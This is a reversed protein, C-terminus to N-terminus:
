QSADFEWRFCRHYRSGRPGPRSEFLTLGDVAFRRALAGSPSFCAEAVLARAPVVRAHRLRGITVHPTFGRNEPAFGGSVLAAPAPDGTAPTTANVAAAAGVDTGVDAGASAVLAKAVRETLEQFPDPAPGADLGVWLVRPPGRPPFMGPGAINVQFVRQGALAVGLAARLPVLRGWPTAGLFRITVHLNETPTWRVPDPAGRPLVARLRAACGASFESLETRVSGPLEVALFLRLVDVM